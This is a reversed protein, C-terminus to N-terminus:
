RNAPNYPNKERAIRVTSITPTTGRAPRDQQFPCPDPGGVARETRHLVGCGYRCYEHTPKRHGAFPTQRPRSSWASM